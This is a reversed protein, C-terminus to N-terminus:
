EPPPLRFLKLGGDRLRATEREGNQALDLMREALYARAFDLEAASYRRDKIVESWVADFADGVSKSLDADFVIRAAASKNDAGSKDARKRGAAADSVVSSSSHSVTRASNRALPRSTIAFSM